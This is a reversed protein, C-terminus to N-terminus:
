LMKKTGTNSRRAAAEAQSITACFRDLQWIQRSHGGFHCWIRRPNGHLPHDYNAADVNSNSFNTHLLSLASVVVVPAPRELTSDLLNESWLMCQLAEYIQRLYSNGFIFVTTAPVAFITCNHRIRQRILTDFLSVIEAGHKQISPFSLTINHTSEYRTEPFCAYRYRRLPCNSAYFPQFGTIFSSSATTTENRFVFHADRLDLIAM